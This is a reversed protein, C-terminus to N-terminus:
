NADSNFKYRDLTEVDELDDEGTSVGAGTSSAYEKYLKDYWEYKKSLEEYTRGMRYTPQFKKRLLEFTKMGALRVQANTYLGLIGALEDSTLDSIATSGVELLLTAQDM